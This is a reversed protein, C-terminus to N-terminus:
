RIGCGTCVNFYGYSYGYNKTVYHSAKAESIILSGSLTASRTRNGVAYCSAPRVPISGTDVAHFATIKSWQVLAGLLSLSYHVTFPSYYFKNIQM